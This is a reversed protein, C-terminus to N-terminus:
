AGRNFAACDERRASEFRLEPGVIEPELWFEAEGDPGYVHIPPRPEERSFFLELFPLFPSPPLFEHGQVSLTCM